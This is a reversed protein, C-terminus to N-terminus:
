EVDFATCGAFQDPDQGWAVCDAVTTPDNQDLVAVSVSLRAKTEADCLPLTSVGAEQVQWCPNEADPERSCEPEQLIVLELYLEEWYGYEDIAWHTLDHAETWPESTGDGPDILTLEAGGTWGVTTVDYWWRTDDCDWQVREVYTLGDYPETEEEGTDCGTDGSDCSKDGGCGSLLALTLLIRSDM